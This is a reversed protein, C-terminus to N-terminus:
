GDKKGVKIWDQIRRDLEQASYVGMKKLRQNLAASEILIPINRGPRVPLLVYPVEMGLLEYRTDYLGLREYEKDDDWLELKVVLEIRKRNRVSGIGFVDTVNLIGLGRIEMHHRIFRSGQGVLMSEKVWKVNVIDDGILRHGREILELAAESKGVGSAGIILVGLGFVDVLTGHVNKQPAHTESVVYHFLRIFEATTLSSVFVPTGKQLALETFLYPPKKGHTFVACFVNGSFFKELSEHLKKESLSDIYASEGKGFVQIRDAAFHDFFGALSLGPRNVDASKIERGLGLEGTLPLLQLQTDEPNSLLDRLFLKQTM